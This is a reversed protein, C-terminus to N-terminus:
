PHVVTWASWNTYGGARQDCSWGERVLHNTLVYRFVGHTVVVASAGDRVVDDLWRAARSAQDRHAPPPDIGRLNRYKWWGHALLAWASLPLPTPWRAQTLHTERLLPSTLLERGPAIREASAIARPMDSAVVHHAEAATRVLSEPPRSDPLIGAADYGDIWELVAARDIWRAHM